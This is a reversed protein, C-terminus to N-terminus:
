IQSGNFDEMSGQIHNAVACGYTCRDNSWMALKCLGSVLYWMDIGFRAACVEHMSNAKGGGFHKKPVAEVLM